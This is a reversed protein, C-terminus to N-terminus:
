RQARMAVLVIQLNNMVRTITIATFVIRFKKAYQNVRGVRATTGTRMRFSLYTVLSCCLLRWSATKQKAVSFFVM